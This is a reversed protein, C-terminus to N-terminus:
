RRVAVIHASSTVFDEEPLDRFRQAVKERPLGEAEVRKVSVVEFDYEDCLRLYISYPARNEFFPRNGRVVRWAADSHHWHQNWVGSAPFSFDIQHSIVGGKKVWRSMAAFTGALESRESEHPIHQLAAQSLVLDVSQRDLTRPGWPAVYGVPVDDYLMQRPDLLAARMSGIRQEDLQIHRPGDDTFLKGPFGYSPLAPLLNPFTRPDPIPARNDLLEVLEDLVAVDHKPDARKVTDLGVYQEAGCLLAALGVGLSDKPGIEAVVKTRFSPVASAILSLHRMWVSYCYAGSSRGATGRYVPHLAPFYSKLGGLMLRLTMADMTSFARQMPIVTGNAITTGIGTSARITQL